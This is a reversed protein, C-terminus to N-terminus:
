IVVKKKKEDCNAVIAGGKIHMQEAPTLSVISTAITLNTFLENMKKM